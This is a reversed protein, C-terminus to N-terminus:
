AAAEVGGAGVGSDGIGLVSSEGYSCQRMNEISRRGSGRGNLQQLQRKMVVGLYGDDRGWDNPPM